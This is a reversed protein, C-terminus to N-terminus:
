AIDRVDRRPSLPTDRDDRCALRPATATRACLMKDLIGVFASTRVTFDHPGSRGTSLDLERVVIQSHRPCDLRDGLLARILRLGMACPIGTSRSFRHHSGGAKREAPPGHTLGEGPM